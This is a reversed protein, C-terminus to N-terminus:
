ELLLGTGDALLIGSGDALLLGIHAHTEVEFESMDTSILSGDNSSAIVTTETTIDVGAKKAIVMTAPAVCVDWTGSASELVTTTTTITVSGTGTGVGTWCGTNFTWSAYTWAAFTLKSM